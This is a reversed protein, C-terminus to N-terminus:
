NTLKAQNNQDALFTQTGIAVLPSAVQYSLAVVAGVATSATITAAGALAMIIGGGAAASSDKKLQHNLYVAIGITTVPVLTVGVLAGITAGKTTQVATDFLYSYFDIIFKM